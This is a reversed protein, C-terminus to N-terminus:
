LREFFWGFGKLFGKRVREFFWGLFEGVGKFVWKCGRLFGGWFFWFGKLIGTRVREFVWGM